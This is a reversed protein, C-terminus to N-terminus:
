RQDLLQFDGHPVLGAVFKKIGERTNGEAVSSGCVNLNLVCRFCYRLVNPQIAQSENNCGSCHRGVSSSVDLKTVPRRIHENFDRVLNERKFIGNKGGETML